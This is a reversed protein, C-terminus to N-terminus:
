PMRFPRLDCVFEFGLREYVPRGMTSAQLTAMTHGRSAGHRAAAVTMMETPTFPAAM